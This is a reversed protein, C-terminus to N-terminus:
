KDCFGFFLAISGEKTVDLNIVSYGDRELSEASSLVAHHEISSVILCSREQSKMYGKLAWNDSETGGSTFFIEDSKAGICDAITARADALAARSARSFSYPQSPNGYEETMYSKMSEFADSDLMTKAANDAYVM